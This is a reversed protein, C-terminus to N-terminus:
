KGESTSTAPKDDEVLAVANLAQIYAFLTKKNLFVNSYRSRPNNVTSLTTPLEDWVQLADQDLIVADVKSGDLAQTADTAGPKALTGQKVTDGLNWAGYPNSVTRVDLYGKDADDQVVVHDKSYKWVSPFSDVELYKVDFDRANEPNFLQGFYSMDLDVSKDVNVIVCINKVLSAQNIGEGNFNRTFYRMKKADRKIARALDSIKANKGLYEVPMKNDAIPKSLTLKTHSYEDLIAGNILSSIKGWIFTHFQSLNQFYTTDVTDFVTVPTSIDQTDIYTKGSIKGYNQEFPSRENGKSDRYNPNFAKQEMTDYVISEIKSGFPMLGKKFVALPNQALAVRQFIVGYQQVLSDLYGNLLNQDAMLERGYPEFSQGAKYSPLDAPDSMKSVVSDYINSDTVSVGSETSLNKALESQTM